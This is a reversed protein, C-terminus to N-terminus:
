LAMFAKSMSAIRFLIGATVPRRAEVEQPGMTGIHGIKM